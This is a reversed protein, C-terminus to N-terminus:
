GLDRLLEIFRPHSRVSDLNSDHLYWGKETLGHAAASTLCDIAPEADGLLSYICGANYLLMPDDPRMAIAREVWQRAPEAQGLAAMGNAAMYVARADDPNLELHRTAREIGVERSARAEAHRGLDDFIQAVLLPAQYDEPRVRMATQYLAIAKEQQGRVFCHRACFYPGEFLQDDLHM